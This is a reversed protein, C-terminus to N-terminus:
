LHPRWHKAWRLQEDKPVPLTTEALAIGQWGAGLARYCNVADTMWALQSTIRADRAAYASRQASLVDLYGTLGAGYLRRSRDLAATSDRVADALADQRTGENHYAALADEVEAFAKIVTHQYDLRAAEAEARAARVQASLRGGTYIPATASLLASWALANSTMLTRIMATSPDFTLPLTFDPYLAAVAVGIRATAEAYRREAVRIDPRNAVVLSPLSAPLKPPVPLMRPTVLDVGVAEPPRGLLVAIADRAQTAVTDFPAIAARANDVETQAQATQLTTALGRVYLRQVLGASDETARLNALAVERRAQAARLGAYDAVLESVTALLVGRRQAELAAVSADRAELGRRIRSFLDLEWAVNISYGWFRTNSHVGTLGPPYETATSYQLNGASAGVSVQPSLAAEDRARLEREALLHASAERIDLNNRIAIEVLDNLVPDGLQAWWDHTARETWSIAADDPHDTNFHTPLAVPDPRYDPGVSCGTLLVAVATCISRRLM